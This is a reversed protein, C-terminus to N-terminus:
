SRTYDSSGSLWLSSLLVCTLDAPGMPTSGASPPHGNMSPSHDNMSPPHDNMTSSNEGRYTLLFKPNSAKLKIILTAKFTTSLVSHSEIFGRGALGKEVIESNATGRLRYVTCAAPVPASLYLLAVDASQETSRCAGFVLLPLMSMGFGFDRGRFDRARLSKAFGSERQTILSIDYTARQKEHSRLYSFSFNVAVLSITHM